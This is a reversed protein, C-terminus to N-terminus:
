LIEPNLSFLGFKIHMRQCPTFWKLSGPLQELLPQMRRKSQAMKCWSVGHSTLQWSQFYSLNPSLRCSPVRGPAQLSNASEEWCGARLAWGYGSPVAPARLSSSGLSSGCVPQSRRTRILLCTSTLHGRLWSTSPILRPSPNVKIFTMRGKELSRIPLALKTQM